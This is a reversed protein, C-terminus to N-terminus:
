FARKLTSMTVTNLGRGLVTVIQTNTVHVTVKTVGDVLQYNADIDYTVNFAGAGAVSVTGGNWDTLGTDDTDLRVDNEPWSSVDELFMQGVASAAMLGQSHANTKIATVQLEALGLLGVALIMIAVMLEVLSFGSQSNKSASMM